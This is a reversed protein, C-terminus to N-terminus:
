NDKNADLREQRKSEIYQKAENEAASLRSEFQQTLSTQTSKLMEIKANALELEEESLDTKIKALMEQAKLEADTVLIEIESETVGGDIIEGLKAEVGELDDLCAEYEAKAEASMLMMVAASGARVTSVITGIRTKLSTIDKVYMENTGKDALEVSIKADEIMESVTNKVDDSVNNTRIFEDCFAILSEVTFKGDENKLVSTDSIGLESAVQAVVAEDVERNAMADAFNKIDYISRYTRATTKYAQYVAGYYFTNIHELPNALYIENYVGDVVIGMAIEYLNVAERKAEMYADTAYSELKGHASNIRKIIEDTDYELAAVVSIGERESLTLALKYESPTVAQIDVNDPYREKLEELECLLSFPDSTDVSVSIGKKNAVAQIKSGIKSQLDAAFQANDATVSTRVSGTESDLYGLKIALDTVYKVAAEYNIGVINDAEGYLLIQGDENAGYVSAVTGDADVTIEISPNISVSVFAAAASIEEKEPAKEENDVDNNGDENGNLSCAFLSFCLCLALMLALIKRLNTKMFFEKRM